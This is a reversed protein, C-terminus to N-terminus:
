DTGLFHLGAARTERRADPAHEATKHAAATRNGPRHQGGHRQRLGIGTRRAVSYLRGFLKRRERHRQYKISPVLPNAAAAGGVQATGSLNLVPDQARATVTLASTRPNVAAWTGSWRGDGGTVLNLQPDGNSFAITVGGNKLPSGCDNVVVVEISNPWSVVAAFNNGLLSFVPLLKTPTCTGAAPLAHPSLTAAATPSPLVPTVVLLLDVTRTARDQPFNLTLTGRYTGVPLNSTNPQVTITAPTNPAVSGSAPSFTFWNVTGTVTGSATFPSPQSTLNTIRVSQSSPNPGGALAVFTLGTPEVVPGPNVGPALVNLVISLFQPTNPAGLADVRIQGYYDGPALGKPDVSVTLAPSQGGPAVSGTAPDVSLWSGGSVTSTAVAFTLSRQSGNLVNFTKPSPTGGGQVSQFTFGTQTTGLGTLYVPLIQPPSTIGGVTVTVSLNNGAVNGPVVTSIMYGGVAIGNAAVVYGAFLVTSAEGGITVIVPAATSVMLPGPAGAAVPPNTPGLGAAFLQITEGQKAPNSTSVVTGNAKTAAVIGQSTFLAPAYQSIQISFPQSAQNQYTVVLSAPGITLDYPFQVLLETASSFFILTSKGNITVTLGPAASSQATAPGM